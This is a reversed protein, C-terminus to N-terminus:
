PRWMACLYREGKDGGIAIFQSACRNVGRCLPCGDCDDCVSDAGRVPGRVSGEAVSGEGARSRPRPNDSSAARMFPTTISRALSSRVTSKALSDRTPPRDQMKRLPAMAIQLHAQLLYFLFNNIVVWRSPLRRLRRVGLMGSLLQGRKVREMTESSAISCFLIVICKYAVVSEHYRKWM